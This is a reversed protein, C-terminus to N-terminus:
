FETNCLTPREVPYHCGRFIDTSSAAQDQVLVAVEPGSLSRCHSIDLIHNTYQHFAYLHLVSNLSPVVSINVQYPSM